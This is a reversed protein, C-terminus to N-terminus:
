ESSNEQSVEVSNEVPVLLSHFKSDVDLTLAKCGDFRSFLSEFRFTFFIFTKLVDNNVLLLRELLIQFFITRLFWHTGGAFRFLFLLCDKVLDIFADFFDFLIDFLLRQFHCLLFALKFIQFVGQLAKRCALLFQGLVFCVFIFTTFFELHTWHYLNFLM